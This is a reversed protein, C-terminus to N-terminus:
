APPNRPEGQSFANKRLYAIYKSIMPYNKSGDCHDLYTKIFINEGDPNIMFRFQQEIVERDGIGHYWAVFVAELLNLYNTILSRIESSLTMDIIINGNNNTITHNSGAIIADIVPKHNGSVEFSNQNFIALCAVQDLQDVFKATIKSNRRINITWQWILNAAFERRSKEHEARIQFVAIGIGIATLIQALIGISDFNM